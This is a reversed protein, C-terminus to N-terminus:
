SPCEDNDIPACIEITSQATAEIEPDDDFGIFIGDIRDQPVFDFSGDFFPSFLCATKAGLASPSCRFIDNGSGSLGAVRFRGKTTLYIDNNTDDIFTGWVNESPRRLRVDSGDFYRKWSGSTHSGFSSANFVILDEGVGCFWPVCFNGATSVVLRGGPTFGIADVDESPKKLGVDSGNFFWEFTGATDEGICSPIFRIIDSDDVRGLGPIFKPANLSLLITGDESSVHFANVDRPALGVDSGDFYMRWEDTDRNYVFIDENSFSIGDINVDRNTSVFITEALAPGTMASLLIAMGALMLVAHTSKKQMNNRKGINKM